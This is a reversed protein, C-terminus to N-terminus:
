LYQPPVHGDPHDYAQPPTKSVLSQRKSVIRYDDGTSPVLTAKKKIDVWKESKKILYFM